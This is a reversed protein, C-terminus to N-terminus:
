LVESNVGNRDTYAQPISRERPVGDRLLRLGSIVVTANTRRAADLNCALHNDDWADDDDLIAVFGDFKRSALYELGTNWAGAAGAARLNRLLVIEPGELLGSERMVAPEM